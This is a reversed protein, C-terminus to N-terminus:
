KSFERSGGLETFDVPGATSCHLDDVVVRSEGYERQLTKVTHDVCMNCGGSAGKFCGVVVVKGLNGGLFLDDLVKTAEWGLSNSRARDDREETLVQAKSELFRMFEQVYEYGKKWRPETADQERFYSNNLRTALVPGKFGQIRARLGDLFPKVYRIDATKELVSDPHVVLLVDVSGETSLRHLFTVVVDLSSPHSSV